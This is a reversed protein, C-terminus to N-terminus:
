AAETAERGGVVGPLKDHDSEHEEKLVIGSVVSEVVTDEKGGVGPRNDLESEHQEEEETEDTDNL